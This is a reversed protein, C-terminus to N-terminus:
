IVLLGVLVFAASHHGCNTQVEPIYQVNVVILSGNTKKKFKSRPALGISNNGCIM